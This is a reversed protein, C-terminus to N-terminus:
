PRRCIQRIETVCQLGSVVVTSVVTLKDKVDQRVHQHRNVEEKKKADCIAPPQDPCCAAINSTVTSSLVAIPLVTSSSCSHGISASVFEVLTAYM